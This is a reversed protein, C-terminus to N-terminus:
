LIMIKMVKIKLELAIKLNAELSQGSDNTKSRNNDKESIYSNNVPIMNEILKLADEVKNKNSNRENLINSVIPHTRDIKYKSTGYNNLISWPSKEGKNTVIPSRFYNMKKLDKILDNLITTLKNKILAPVRVDTKMLNIKWDEDYHGDYNVKIRLQNYKERRQM